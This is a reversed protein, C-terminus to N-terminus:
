GSWNLGPLLIHALDSIRNMLRRKSRQIFWSIEKMIFLKQTTKHINKQHVEQRTESLKPDDVSKIEKVMALIRRLFLAAIKKM